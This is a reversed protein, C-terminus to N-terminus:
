FNNKKGLMSGTEGLKKLDDQTQNPQTLTPTTPTVPKKFLSQREGENGGSTGKGYVPGKKEDGQDKGAVDSFKEDKKTALESLWKFM